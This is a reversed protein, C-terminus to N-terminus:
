DRKKSQNLFEEHLRRFVDDANAHLWAAFDRHQASPRFGLAGKTFAVEGLASGDQATLAFPTTGNEQRKEKATDAKPLAKVWAAFREDSSSGDPFPAPHVSLVDIKKELVVVALEYWRKWGISPAAGIRELVQRPFAERVKRMHSTHSRNVNLADQDVRADYGAEALDGAFM